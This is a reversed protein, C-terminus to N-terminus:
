HDRAVVLVTGELATVRMSTGVPADSGRALWESDGLRVRGQGESIAQTVVVAQGVVQAARNNLSQEGGAGGRRAMVARGAAVAALALVAFTVAGAELGLGLAGTLLATALAAAALWILFYGPVLMEAIALVLGAAAWLWLPPWSLITSM